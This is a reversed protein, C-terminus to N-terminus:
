CGAPPNTMLMSSRDKAIRTYYDDTMWAPKTIATKLMPYKAEIEAPTRANMIRWVGGMGYDYVFICSQKM